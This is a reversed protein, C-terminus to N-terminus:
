RSMFSKIGVSINSETVQNQEQIPKQEQKFEANINKDVIIVEATALKHLLAIEKLHPNWSFILEYIPRWLIVWSFVDLCNKVGDHIRIGSPILLPLFAESLIVIILSICLLMWSKRKFKRFTEERIAKKISFHRRISFMLPEAYQKDVAGPCNPKYFIVSYRKATAVSAMIYEEFKHSLQRKYLPSPDHSNFYSDLTQYDVALFINIKKTLTKSM